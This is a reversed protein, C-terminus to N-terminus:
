RATAPRRLQELAALLEAPRIPKAVYADVGAALCRDRDGKMAFATLAVIPIHAGSSRERERIAAIAEFGDMDPMQMDMLVLDFAERELAELAQRGDGAVEVSHGRKELLRVVLLQNVANDEAVLIRLAPGAHRDRGAPPSTRVKSPTKGNVATLMADLLESSKIPKLLHASIDLELCRDADGPQTASTLMLLSVGRWEPNERIKRAVTYGDMDPMHGDLLVLPFAGKGGEALLSLAALGDEVATPRLGWHSLTELLVARNTANDDVILVPLDALSVLEKDAERHTATSDWGFVATFHFASGPGGAARGPEQWPSEVWIRGNMMQALRTSIALGLGTGGYKRTTSGDAQEFPEFIAGQKEAPVGVGTDSVTIHLRVQGDVQEAMKVRLSVEGRETFKIANGALNVIIQRLRLPDGHLCDPVEPAVHCILELKKEAARLALLRLADSLYDRLGFDVPSLELKGAEIKSFDLIDNLIGLLSEASNQVMNLYGAQEPTLDTDLALQTMGMIGNMPTRIEHSMNALFSSKAQSAAEAADRARKLEVVLKGRRAYEGVAFAALFLLALSGSGAVVLFGAQRYWPLLVTFEFVAPTPDINGNRDMARVEFRHQGANLEQYSALSVSEFPTWPRGDLRYSFLLRDSTTYQWKDIGSFLLRVEGGPAAERLNKDARIVTEPPWPDAGPDYWSIGRTTAAWLRGRSDQLVASVYTSPLGDDVTNTLWLGNHYRHTGTGSALWLAGERDWVMSRVRDLNKRIVRWSKGDSEVLKDRGGVLIRGGGADLLSFAGTEPFGEEPRVRRY